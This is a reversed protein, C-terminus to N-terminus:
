KSENQYEDVESQVVDSTYNNNEDLTFSCIDTGSKTYCVASYLELIYPNYEYVTLILNGDEDRVAYIPLENILSYGYLASNGCILLTTNTKSQVYKDAYTICTNKDNSIFLPHSTEDEVSDFICVYFM